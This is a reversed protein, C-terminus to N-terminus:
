KDTKFHSDNKCVNDSSLKFEIRSFLLRNIIKAKIRKLHQRKFQYISGFQGIIVGDTM